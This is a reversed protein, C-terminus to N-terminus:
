LLMVLQADQVRVEDVQVVVVVVVVEPAVIWEGAM